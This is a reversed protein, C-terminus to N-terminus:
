TTASTNNKKILGSTACEARVASAYHKAKSLALGGLWWRGRYKSYLSIDIGLARRHTRQYCHLQSSRARPRTRVLRTCNCAPMKKLAVRRTAVDACGYSLQSVFAQHKPVIKPPRTACLWAEPSPAFAAGLCATFVVGSGCRNFVHRGVAMGYPGQM